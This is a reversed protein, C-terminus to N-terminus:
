FDILAYPVPAMGDITRRPDDWDSANRRRILEALSSGLRADLASRYLDDAQLLDSQTRRLLSDPRAPPLGQRRRLHDAFTQSGRDAALFGTEGSAAATGIRLLDSLDRTTGQSAQQLQTLEDILVGLEARSM